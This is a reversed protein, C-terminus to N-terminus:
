PKFKNLGITRNLIWDMVTAPLLNRLMLAGAVNAPALYRASPRAATLAKEVAEAVVIPPPATPHGKAHWTKYIQVQDAYPGNSAYQELGDQEQHGFPTNIFGPRVVIVKVGYPAVEGRLADSIGELAHKSSAYAGHFPSSIRGAVSSINVIRGVRAARMEPLVARIVNLVGFVNTEYQRRWEEAPVMEVPGPVSIGANNVLGYISAGEAKIAELAAAISGEDTVDLAVPHIRGQGLGSLDNLKQIRRAGAFVKFGQHALHIATAEGIGSSAGTVLVSKHM